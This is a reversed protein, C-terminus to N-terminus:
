EIISYNKRIYDRSFANFHWWEINIPHWGADTMASRLILRNAIQEESLKGQQQFQNELLPQALPGFHDMSTGMDLEKGTDVNVLTVDVAAGFNHMSGTYPNAVYPQMPTDVVLKWMRHQVFRPRFAEGVLVRLGPHRKRILENARVLMRAPKPHLYACTFDGYVNEGMFNDNRAYKLDIILSQDLLSVNILGEEILQLEINSTGTIKDTPQPSAPQIDFIDINRSFAPLPLLTGAFAAGASLIFSRRTFKKKIGMNYPM